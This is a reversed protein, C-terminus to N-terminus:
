NVASKQTLLYFRLAMICCLFTSIFGIFYISSWQAKAMVFWLMLPIIMLCALAHHATHKCYIYYLIPLAILLMLNIFYWLPYGLFCLAWLLCFCLSFLIGIMYDRKKTM